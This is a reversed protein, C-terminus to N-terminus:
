DRAMASRVDDEFGKLTERAKRRQAPTTANHIQAALRCNYDVLKEQYARYEPDPSRELRAELTRLAAVRQDLDAKDAVLRRLTQVTDRQRRQREALWLEPNFPSAAVGAAIVKLQPEDLRGYLREAREVARKVSEKQRVALDPQLFDERMTDVVKAYREELHKFQAPGLGPILEAGLAMARDLAPDQLDRAQDQWRCAQAPTTAETIQAQASALFPLFGALQTSRHWDFLKDINQKVLPAQERSFDFYGDLWWWALTPGNNYALLINSCGGMLPLTLVMLTGIIWSKLRSLRMASLTTIM